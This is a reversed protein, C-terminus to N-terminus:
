KKPQAQAAEMSQQIRELNPLVTALDFKNDAAIREWERSQVRQQLFTRAPKGTAKSMANALYLGSYGVKYSKLQNELGSVPVGTEKSIAALGAPALKASNGLTNIRTFRAKLQAKVEAAGPSSVSSVAPQPKGAQSAAPAPLPATVPAPTPTPTSKPATTPVPAAVTSQPQKAARDEGDDDRDGRNDKYHGKAKGKGKGKGKGPGQEDDLISGDQGVVIKNEGESGNYQVEYVTVGDRRVVKVKKVEGQGKGENITRQVASPLQSLDTPKDALAMM